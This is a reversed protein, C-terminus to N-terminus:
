EYSVERTVQEVFEYLEYIKQGAEEPTIERTWIFIGHSTDISPFKKGKIMRGHNYCGLLREGAWYYIKDEKVEMTFPCHNKIIPMPIWSLLSVFFGRM